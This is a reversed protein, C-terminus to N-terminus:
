YRRTFTYYRRRRRNIFFVVIKLLIFAIIIFGAIKLWGSRFPSGEGSENTLIDLIDKRKVDRVSTLPVSKLLQGQLTVRMEGLKQGKSIPAELRPLDLTSNKSLVESDWIIEYKIDSIENKRFVDGWDQSSIQVAVSGWDGSAYNDIPLTEVIEGEELALHYEFNSFGYELMQRTEGWQMNFDSKMVVGVLDLGDKSAFTILCHGAPTTYGTKGGTAWEYYEASNKNLLRNKSQWFRPEGSEWYGNQMVTIAAAERIFSNKYAERGILALDYATTYHDPDHYGHPNVFNSNLAGAEKARKNMLEAFYDLAEETSLNRGSDERAIHVAITNGADNGSNILLGYVLDRLTIRENEELGAKSGDWPTLFIEEGVVIIEDLNGQEAAILATLIKTTSAPYLRQHEQKGYLVKGTNQEIVVAGAATLQYPPSLVAQNDAVVSIDIESSNGDTQQGYVAQPASSLVLLIILIITLTNKLLHRM